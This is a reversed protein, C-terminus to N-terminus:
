LVGKMLPLKCVFQAGGLRGKAQVFVEGQLDSVTDKVITLGLGTGDEKTSNGPLWIDKLSIKQIGPGSDSVEIILSADVETTSIEIKGSPLAAAEFAAISNTILNTFISEIAAVSAKVLSRPANLSLVLTIRRPELYLRFGDGLKSIVDHVDTRTVRRKEHSLLGLTVDGITELSRIGGKIQDISKQAKTPYEVAFQTKCRRELTQIAMNIVKLSGGRTEHSFIAAMIGATSLTRYLQVERQLNRVQKEQSRTYQEYAEQLAQQQKGPTEEIARQLQRQAKTVARKTVKKGEQRRDESVSRRRNAMWDLIDSAFDRLELFAANEIYGSRDTKQTLHPHPNTVSIKGISNNTSPKHEPSRSRKLNLDLWDNNPDGYPSVRLGNEYVHVGGRAALWLKLTKLSVVRNNSLKDADLIFTWFDLHVPPCAYPAQERKAAVDEHTGSFMLEGDRYLKASALGKKDVEARVYYKAAQFYKRNVLEALGSYAPSVLEPKFGLTESGFPDALLVLARALRNADVKGIKQHLNHITIETGSRGRLEPPRVHRSITLAVDEVIESADFRRWDIHLTYYHRPDSQPYSVLDAMNGLRLAALRGLGKSGAPLRGALTRVVASKGSRGLVLWGDRIADGTMGHGDDTIVVRGGEKEVDILEIRCVQADADYANKVLELIGQHPNPNLEEGLRRLIETSFRFSAERNEPKVVTSM